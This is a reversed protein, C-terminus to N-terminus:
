ATNAAVLIGINVELGREVQEIIQLVFPPTSAPLEGRERAGLGVLGRVFLGLGPSLQPSEHSLGIPLATQEVHLRVEAM